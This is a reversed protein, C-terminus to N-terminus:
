LQATLHFLLFGLSTVLGLIPLLIPYNPVGAPPRPERKKIVLLSLNVLTFIALIITSTAKALTVLPFWLALILVIGTMVGTARLPTRTKENVVAFWAPGMGTNSMGFAVRAAMIIQVLAGNVGALVSVVGMTKVAVPGATFVADALPTSSMALEDIPITMMVALTVLLYLVTTLLVSLLIAIPLNRQPNKVEEAVNVMDEFGIFSYFALFGGLFIGKWALFSVPPILEDLRQPIELFHGGAVFLVFILGGIEIVTIVIAFVVSELIGWAAVAGMGIVVLCIGMTEPFRVLDQLFGAIATALTAASVVGTSIVM